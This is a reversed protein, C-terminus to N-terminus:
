SSGSSECRPAPVIDSRDATVGDVGAERLARIHESTRAAKWAIVDFGHGRAVSVIDTGICLDYHPFVHTCGLEAARSLNTEAAEEFLLGRPVDASNAKIEALAKPLFSSIRVEVGTEVALRLADSAIGTEKLEIQVTVDNPVAELVTELRPISQDSDLVTLTRLTSWSTETVRGNAETVRDLTADHFVVLEGSGCRRVDIEVAQLRRVTNRIALLTNEPFQEACGRHGIIEM